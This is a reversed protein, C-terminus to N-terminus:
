CEAVEELKASRVFWWSSGHQTSSCLILITCPRSSPPVIGLAGFWQPRRLGWCHPLYKRWYLVNVWSLVYTRVHPRWVQKKCRVGDWRPVAKFVNSYFSWKLTNTWVKTLVLTPRHQLVGCSIKKVTNVILSFKKVVPVFFTKKDMNKSLARKAAFFDSVFFWESSLVIWSPARNCLVFYFRAECWSTRCRFM